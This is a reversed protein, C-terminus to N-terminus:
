FGEPTFAPPAGRLDSIGGAQLTVNSGSNRLLLSAILFGTGRFSSPIGQNTFGSADAVADGLVTYGGSPLNLMLKCTGDSESQVGWLVVTYYKNALSVGESDSPITAPSLGQVSRYPVAPDNIVHLHSGGGLDFAPFTQLHLQWAAGSTTSIYLNTTAVGEGPTTSVDIGSDYQAPFARLRANVHSLHGQNNSGALHDTWSHLKYVGETQATAATPCLVRAIPVVTENTPFGSLSVTLVKTSEPVYVWNEIPVTDTGATLEISAPIALKYFDSQFFLSLFDGGNDLTLTIALGDSSVAVNHHELIAGNFIRLVGSTNGIISVHAEVTGVSADAVGVNGLGVRYSPSTPPTKTFGGAVSDSLWIQDKPVCTSTDIDRVTGTRTLFGEAGALIDQTAFGLTSLCTAAEDAKALAATPRGSDLGSLYCVSGNTITVGTNNKVRIWVEQGLQQITGSTDPVVNICKDAANWYVLGEAGVPPTPVASLQMSNVDVLNEDNLDLPGLMPQTGDRALKDSLLTNLAAAVDAGVVSSDNGIESAVLADVQAQLADLEDPGWTTTVTRQRRAPVGPDIYEAGSVALFKGDELAM